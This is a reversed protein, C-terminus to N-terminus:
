SGLAAGRRRKRLTLSIAGALLLLLALAALAWPGAAPVPAPVPPAATFQISVNDVGQHLFFQNDVEAFRIQFTGGAGVTSTIDFVYPTYPNPTPGPDVTLYLNALVGAGPVTFTQAM